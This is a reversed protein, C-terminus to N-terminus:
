ASKPMRLPMKEHEDRAQRVQRWSEYDDMTFYRKGSIWREHQEVLLAGIMRLASAENPFIRIVRERRRIEENLRELMNTTRLRRRYTAPLVLVAIADELGAELVDLAADAKGEFAAALAEFASRAEAQNESRFIRRLWATMEGRLHKPTVKLVNRTFHAQCRQWMAGQFHRRAAQVLGGHNDSAILDVGRLGRDKLNKFFRAWTGETESDGIDLGLVERHGEQSIGLAVLVSTSRVAGDRRVKVVLADVIVFPYRHTLPRSRWAEVRTELDACLSSVTSKSFSRGCLEETIRTVKRTSVGQVVMEMLALVLAQESRQYRRFLETSFSGDRSQPVRLTLTGVRTTLPRARYGNRYTRRRETRQYPEAGIHETMEAELVQDLVQELLGKLRQDHSLVDKLQDTDITVQMQAM